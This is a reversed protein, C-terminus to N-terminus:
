EGNKGVGQNQVRDTMIIEVEEDSSGEYLHQPKPVQHTWEKRDAGVSGGGNALAELKALRDM